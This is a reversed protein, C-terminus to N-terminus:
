KRIRQHHEAEAALQKLDTAHVDPYHNHGEILDGTFFHLCYGVLVGLLIEKNNRLLSPANKGGYYSFVVVVVILILLTNM